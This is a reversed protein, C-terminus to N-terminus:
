GNLKDKEFWIEYVGAGLYKKKLITFRGRIILSEYNLLIFRLEKTTVRQRFGPFNANWHNNSLPNKENNVCM